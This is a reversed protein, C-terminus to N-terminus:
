WSDGADGAYGGCPGKKDVASRMACPVIVLPLGGDWSRVCSGHLPQSASTHCPVVTGNPYSLASGAALTASCTETRLRQLGRSLLLLPAESPVGPQLALPARTEVERGPRRWTAPLARETARGEAPRGACVRARSLAAASLPGPSPCVRARTSHPARSASVLTRLM